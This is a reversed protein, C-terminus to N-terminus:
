TSVTSPESYFGTFSSINVMDVPSRRIEEMLRIVLGLVLPDSCGYPYRIDMRFDQIRTLNKAAAWQRKLIASSALYFRVHVYGYVTEKEINMSVVKGTFIIFILM